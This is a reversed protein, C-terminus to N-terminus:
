IFDSLILVFFYSYGVPTGTIHGEVYSIWREPDLKCDEYTKKILKYQADISPFTIGEPKYGDCNTLSHYIVGYIRKAEKRRQLFLSVIAESRCYGDVKADLCKGKGEASLMRLNSFGLTTSPKQNISLAGIIM